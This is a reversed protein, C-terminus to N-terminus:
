CFDIDSESDEELEGKSPVPLKNLLKPFILDMLMELKTELVTTRGPFKADALRAFFEMFEVM